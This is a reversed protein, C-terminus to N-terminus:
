GQGITESTSYESNNVLWNNNLIVLNQYIKCIKISHIKIILTIPLVHVYHNELLVFATWLYLIFVDGEKRGRNKESSAFSGKLFDNLSGFFMMESKTSARNCKNETYAFFLVTIHSLKDMRGWKKRVRNM